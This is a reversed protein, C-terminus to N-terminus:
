TNVIFKNYSNRIKNDNNLICNNNNCFRIFNEIKELTFNNLKRMNVFIGNNNITYKLGDKQIINFIEIHENENLYGINKKMEKLKDLDFILTNNENENISIDTM